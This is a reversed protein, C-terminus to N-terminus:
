QIPTVEWPDHVAAQAARRALSASNEDIGEPRYKIETVDKGFLVGYWTCAAIYRGIKMDLHYGDRNLNDGLSTARANQIATGSPLVLSIANDAMAQRAADCIHRYMDLQNNGYYRFAWHSASSAYAWTQHFGIVPDGVTNERVYAILMGLWPSYSDAIGSYHSAQQLTVVDWHEGALAAKMTYNDTQTLRGDCDISHYRYIPADHRANYAHKQLECGGISLNGIIITDGAEAVIEHIHQLLADESFSNGIALVRVTRADCSFFIAMVAILTCLKRIM